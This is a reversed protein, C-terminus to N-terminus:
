EGGDGEIHVRFMLRVSAGGGPRNFISISGAHMMVISRSVALGLGTGEGMPKTTFFPEFLRKQFEASIGPGTDRIEIAAVRDGPRFSGSTEQELDREGLAQAWTAIEISGDRGIAQAANTLLNIFVQAMRDTDALVPPLPVAYDRIVAIHRMIFEHRVLHLADDIVRDIAVPSLRLLKPRSFDLLEQIIGDARDAAARIDGLIAMEDDEKAHQRSLYDIGLRIISLPNRVEHAVGAALRGVSDMRDAVMLREHAARLERETERRRALEERLAAETRRRETIDERVAVFRVIEGRENKLPSVNEYGWYLEGNKRRNQMEGQWQRGARLSGRIEEYTDPPTAPSRVVAQTRGILEDMAYGSMEIFKPNVYVFRGETDTIATAAPSQEVAHSLMRLREESERLATEALERQRLSRALRRNNRQVYAAIAGLVALLAVAIALSRYLWGLDVKPHPDYLFGDLPFDRPLMGIDAYTEAMHRWRGAYMYGVEILEPRILAQMKRAEFLLYERSHRQTYEALILDVIEEPHDLAYQWGRLSAARFAEVRGPHDKLQGETTFLNDGYFDIGASRPTYIQYPVGARDLYYPQHTVYAAIADTRGGILDQTDYSHAIQRVLDLPIGEAKLYALLEDAQPELMVRKGVLDHITQAPGLQRAILAYPSHQFIVALAVVPKGARRQLLLASTGVGFEAEGDLVVRVPDTGPPAEAIRVELGAERYYGKHRAAYYGAFQFAHTWKLQLTVADLAHVTASFPALVACLLGTALCRLDM